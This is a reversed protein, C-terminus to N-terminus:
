LSCVLVSLKGGLVSASVKSKMAEFANQECVCDVM